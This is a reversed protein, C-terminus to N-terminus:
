ESMQDSILAVSQGAGIASLIEPRVAQANHEHYTLLRRNIGFRTLLRQSTRTDECYVRDAKELVALARLSADGLHGIPTAVLYLGAPLDRQLLAALERTVAAQLSSEGPSRSPRQDSDDADNAM